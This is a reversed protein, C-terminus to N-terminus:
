DCCLLECGKLKRLASNEANCNNDFSANDFRPLLNSQIAIGFFGDLWLYSIEKRNTNLLGYPYRPVFLETTTCFPSIWRSRMSATSIGQPLRYECSSQWSNSGYEHPFMNNILTAKNLM